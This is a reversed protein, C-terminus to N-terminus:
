SVVLLVYENHGVGKSFIDFKNRNVVFFGFSYSFGYEFLPDTSVPNRQFDDSVLSFFEAVFKQVDEIFVEFRFVMCSGAPVGLAVGLGFYAVFCDGFVEVGKNVVGSEVPFHVKGRHHEAVVSREM